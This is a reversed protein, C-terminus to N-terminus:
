LSEQSGFNGGRYFYCISLLMSELIIANEKAWLLASIEKNMIPLILKLSFNLLLKTINNLM